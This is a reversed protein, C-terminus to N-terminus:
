FRYNVGITFNNSNFGQQVALGGFPTFNYTEKSMSVYTYNADISWNQALRYEVGGGVIFGNHTARASGIGVVTGEGRGWIGGAIFYPLFRDVAVGIRGAAVVASKVKGSFTPGVGSPTSDSISLLPVALRAGLVINSGVFQYDYGGLVTGVFGKPAINATAPFAPTGNTVRGDVYGVSAGLYWGTWNMVPHMAVPAAKVPMDATYGITPVVVSIVLGAVVGAFLRSM